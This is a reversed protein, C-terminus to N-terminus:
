HDIEPQTFSVESKALKAALTLPVLNQRNKIHIDAGLQYALDFMRQLSNYNLNYLTQTVIEARMVKNERIVM